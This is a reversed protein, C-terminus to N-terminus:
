KTLVGGDSYLLMLIDIEEGTVPDIYILIEEKTQTRCHYEYVFVETEWKTPIVAKKTSLVKLGEKLLKEGQPITFKVNEPIERQQHNYLYGTADFATISGDSLSVSVKILDTYYTVGNEYYSFNVTCIGDTTSFYSEKINKYGRKNLFERAKEIAQMHTLSIEGAYRDTIMSCVIGGRQTVSVTINETYFNFTSMNNETKSLLKLENANIGAFEAAKLQADEQSVKPLKQTYVSKKNGIHDSFPGDYILTPYSELSQNADNLEQGLYLAENGETSLTSKIEDFSLLGTEEQSILYHVTDCLSKSHNLLSKLNENEEQTLGKGSSVKNNLLVTYEGVQSLFKYVRSVETNGDTIESLCEKACASSRWLEGSLRLLMDEGESYMCKQLNLSIDDLYTGLQTLARENSRQVERQTMKLKYTSVGAWVSLVAVGATLFSIIRVTGRKSLKM